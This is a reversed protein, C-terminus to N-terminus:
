RRRRRQLVQRVGWIVAVISIVFWGFAWVLAPVGTMRAMSEADSRGGALSHGLLSQLDELSALCTVTAFWVVVARRLGVPGWQSLAVLLSTAIAVILWTFLGDSQAFGTASVTAGDAVKPPVFPVWAVAVGVLGVVLAGLIWQGDRMRSAAVLLLVGSITAGLYGASTVALHPLLGEPLLSQTLGGESPSITMSVVRGGVVRAMLAHSAEHLLTVLLRVPYVVPSRWFFLSVVAAAVVSVLLAQRSMPPPNSASM